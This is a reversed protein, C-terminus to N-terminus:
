ADTFVVPAIHLDEVTREASMRGIAAIGLKLLNVLIHDSLPYEMKIRGDKGTGPDTWVLTLLHDDRCFEVERVHPILGDYILCPTGNQMTFVATNMM